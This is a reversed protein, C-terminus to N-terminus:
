FPPMVFMYRLDLLLLIFSEIRKIDANTVIDSINVPLPFDFASLAEALVFDIEIACLAFKAIPKAGATM